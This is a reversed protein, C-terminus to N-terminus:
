EILEYESTVRFTGTYERFPYVYESICYTFTKEFSYEKEEIEIVKDFLDRMGREKIEDVSGKLLFLYLTADKGLVLRVLMDDSCGGYICLHYGFAILVKSDIEDYSGYIKGPYAPAYEKFMEFVAELRRKAVDNFAYWGIKDIGHIRTILKFVAFLVENKPYIVLVKEGPASPKIYESIM